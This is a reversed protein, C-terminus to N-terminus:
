INLELGKRPTLHFELPWGEMAILSREHYLTREEYESEDDLEMCLYSVVDSEFAFHWKKAQHSMYGPSEAVLVIACGTKEAIENLKKIVPYSYMPDDVFNKSKEIYSSIPDIILLKIDQEKIAEEVSDDGLTIVTEDNVIFVKSLDAGAQKLRPRVIGELNEEDTFYLVNMPELYKSVDDLSKRNTCAAMMRMALMSKGVGKVGHLLTVKGFAVYPEWMWTVKVDKIDEAKILRRKYNM